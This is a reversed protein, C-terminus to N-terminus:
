FDKEIYLIELFTNHVNDHSPVEEKASPNLSLHKLTQSPKKLLRLM